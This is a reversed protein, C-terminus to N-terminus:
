RRFFVSPRSVWDILFYYCTYMCEEIILLWWRRWRPNTYLIAAFGLLYLVWTASLSGFFWIIDIDYWKESEKASPVDGSPITVPSTSVCKKELPDGCLLPNGKYSEANFTSFQGKMDPLRGSLNNYSVNFSAIYSLKTLQSPVNGSLGNSSLDLSVLNALDSLEEPISGTLQNHSLNLVCIQTLSWGLGQPIEGTLKNNSLDLGRMYDIIDSKYFRSVRKITFHVKYHTELVIDGDQDTPSWSKLTSFYVYSSSWSYKTRTKQKYSLSGPGAISQLCPPISGYLSNGSLDILTVNSLQCLQTPISGSFNNQSMLLIRLNSLLGLFEPIKGSLYNNGIDLTLVGIMTQFTRPISGTFRNFGLHLHKMRQLNLCSPISGSLFNESVDLFLFSAIGCPLKGEFRNNRVSLTRLSISNSMWDPLVGSFLNNSIDLSWLQFSKSVDNEIKGTFYNNNLLLFNFSWHLSLNGSLVDGHLKNYSLDLVGFPRNDTFLEQPVEGSIENDSLDLIILGSMNAISSPFDGSLANRSLNLFTLDPFFKGIDSPITGIIHNGSIDLKGLHVNRYPPMRIRDGFSNNRLYLVELMTNNNILWTPFPEDLFNHSLDLVRLKHQSRLFSPVVRGKARNVNCNSLLLVKLQFMPVWGIPEQTEVEFKDNDSIFEVVELKSHNAFSSFSLSGEFKNHSFDLYELSTLNSILYRPIIGSFKNSSIKFLKLSSFKDFCQPLNGEFNNAHLDLEQLKKLECLGALFSFMYIYMKPLILINYTVQLTPVRM